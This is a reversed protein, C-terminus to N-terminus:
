RGARGLSPRPPASAPARTSGPVGQGRARPPGHGLRPFRVLPASVQPPGAPSALLSRPCPPGQERAQASHAVGRGGRMRRARRGRRLSRAYPPGRPEQPGANTRAGTPQARYTDVRAKIAPTQPPYSHARPMASARGQGAWSKESWRERYKLAPGLPAPNPPTRGQPGKMGLLVRSGPRGPEETRCM